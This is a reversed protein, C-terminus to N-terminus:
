QNGGRYKGDKRSQKRSLGRCKCAGFRGAAWAMPIMIAAYTWQFSSLPCGLEIPSLGFEDSFAESGHAVAESAIVLAAATMLKRARDLTLFAQRASSLL